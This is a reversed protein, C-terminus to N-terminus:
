PSTAAAFINSFQFRSGNVTSCRDLVSTGTCVQDRQIAWFSVLGIQKQRAYAILTNANAVSFTEADDNKGIMATKAIAPLIALFFRMGGLGDLKGTPPPRNMASSVPVMKSTPARVKKGINDNPGITSCRWSM